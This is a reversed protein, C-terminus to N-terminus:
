WNITCKVNRNNTFKIEGQLPNILSEVNLVEFLIPSQIKMGICSDKKGNYCDIFHGMTSFHYAYMEKVSGTTDKMYLNDFFFNDSLNPISGTVSDIITISNISDESGELGPEMAVLNSSYKGTAVSYYTPELNILLFTRKRSSYSKKSVINLITKNNISDAQVFSGKFSVVKFYGKNENCAVLCMLAIIILTVPKKM